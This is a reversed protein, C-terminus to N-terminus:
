WYIDNMMWETAKFRLLMVCECANNLTQTFSSLVRHASWLLSYWDDDKVVDLATFHFGGVCLICMQKIETVEKRVKLFQNLSMTCELLNGTFKQLTQPSTLPVFVFSHVCSVLWSTKSKSDLENLGERGPFRRKWVQGWNTIYLNLLKLGLSFCWTAPKRLNGGVPGEFAM